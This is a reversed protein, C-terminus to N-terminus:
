RGLGQPRRLRRSAPNTDQDVITGEDQMSRRCDEPKPDDRLRAPSTYVLGKVGISATQNSIAMFRKMTDVRRATTRECGKAAWSPVAVIEPTTVSVVPAATAPADM